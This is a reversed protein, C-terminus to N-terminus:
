EDEDIKKCYGIMSFFFSSWLRRVTINKCGAKQMMEYLEHKHLFDQDTYPWHKELLNFFKFFRYVFFLPSFYAPVLIVLTGNKKLVRIMENVGLSADMKALRFHEMVGQNFVVDFQEDKIPMHFLDGMTFKGDLSLFKFLQKGKKLANGSLDMSIIEFGKQAFKACAMGGGSGPEFIKGSKIKAASLIARVFADSFYTNIAFEEIRSFLSRNKPDYLVDWKTEGVVNVM